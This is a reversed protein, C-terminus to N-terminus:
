PRRRLTVALAASSGLALVLAVVSTARWLWSEGGSSEAAVPTPAGHGDHAHGAEAAGLTVVPAPHEPESNNDVAIENWSVVSGDSYSQDSLLSVTDANEPWPGASFAFEGYETPKLGGAKDIARWTIRSVRQGDATPETEVSATWGPIPLTRASTLAVDDPLTVTVGVTAAQESETPVILRVIGYGGRPPRQGEDVRVHATAPAATVIVGTVVATAVGFMRLPKSTTTM